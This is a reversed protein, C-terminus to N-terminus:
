VLGSCGNKLHKLPYSRKFWPDLMGHTFLLLAHTGRLARWAGFAHYRWIGNVIVADYRHANAEVLAGPPAFLCVGRHLDAGHCPLTFSLREGM